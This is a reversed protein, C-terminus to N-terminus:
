VFVVNLFYNVQKKLAAIEVDKSEIQKKMQENQSKIEDVDVGGPAGLYDRVFRRFNLSCNSHLCSALSRINSM